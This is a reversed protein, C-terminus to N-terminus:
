RKLAFHGKITKGNTLELVFWYDEAPLLNGNSTGNWGKGEPSIQKLLKGFRDFIYIKSTQLGKKSLNKINWTDNYGDGNPTFFKPSDLIFFLQSVIGCGNKDRVYAVFEGAELYNFLNSDQFHIGDISYEYDGIGEAFIEVSNNDTFDVTKIDTITALGSKIVTFTQTGFCNSSNELTVVYNGGNSVTISPTNQIPNTNWSYSIYSNEANLTVTESDGCILYTPMESPEEFVNINLEVPYAPYCNSQLNSIKAYIVQQTALSNVFPISIPITANIDEYFSITYNSPISTFLQSKITNFDTISFETIGDQLNDGDCKSFSTENLTLEEAFEIFIENSMSKCTSGYSVEVSYNGSQSANNFPPNFYLNSNTEGPIPNGNFFWQFSTANPDSADLYDNTCIPNGNSITRDNGLDKGLNFSGGALFIASDYSSDNEDGIVLKIHYTTNPIVNAEARLIVTQGDYVSPYTTNNFGGFYQQNQPGCGGTGPINPHVTTVKVPINTNPILALNQYNPSGVEKLLFAFGDSYTCPYTSNQEYEESAFIYDFSIKNGLPVFDFELVTTNNSTINLTQDLDSDGGWNFDGDSALNTRSNSASGAKGNTLIIGEQFPFITGNAYFAGFSKEGTNFTGGSISFNSVNACSSNILVDRVLEEATLAEDIIISASPILTLNQSKKIKNAKAERNQSNISNLPLLVFILFYLFPFITKSM